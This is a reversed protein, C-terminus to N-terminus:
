VGSLGNGLLHGHGWFLFLKDGPSVNYWKRGLSNSLKLHKFESKWAPLQIPQGTSGSTIRMLDYKQHHDFIQQQNNKILTKDLFPVTNVYEEITKFKTPINELACVKKYYSINEIAHKWTKNVMKLQYEAIEKIDIKSYFKSDLNNLDKKSVGLM